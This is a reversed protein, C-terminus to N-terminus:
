PYLLDVRHLHVVVHFAVRVEVQQTDSSSYALPVFVVDSRKQHIDVNMSQAGNAHDKPM